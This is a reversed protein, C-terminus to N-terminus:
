KCDRNTTHPIGFPTTPRFRMCEKMVSICYPLETRESFLPLRGHLKVFADIEASAVKQVEPYNCMIAIMWSLTVSVTDTGAAM